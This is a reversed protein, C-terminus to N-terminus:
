SHGAGSRIQRVGDPDMQAIAQPPWRTIDEAVFMEIIQKNPQGWYTSILGLMTELRTLLERADDAALDTHMLFNRSNYTRVNATQAIAPEVTFTGLLVAFIGVYGLRLSM